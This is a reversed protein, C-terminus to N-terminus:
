RKATRLQTRLAEMRRIMEKQVDSLPKLLKHQNQEIADNARLVTSGTEMVAMRMGLSIIIDERQDDDLIHTTNSM